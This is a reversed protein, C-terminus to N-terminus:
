TVHGHGQYRPRGSSPLLSLFLGFCVRCEGRKGRVFFVKDGKEVDGRLGKGWCNGGFILRLSCNLVIYVIM